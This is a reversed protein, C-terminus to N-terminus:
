PRDTAAAPAALPTATAHAGDSAVALPPVFRAAPELAITTAPRLAALGARAGDVLRQIRALDTDDLPIAQREAEDRLADTIVTAGRKPMMADPVPTPATAVLTPRRAHWTTAREFAHAVRFMTSEDFHRAVVQLAVPLGEDDVGCPVTIAPHGTLNWQRTGWSTDPPSLVWAEREVRTFPLTPTVLADIDAFAAAVEHAWRTRLQQALAVDAGSGFAGSAIHARAKPGYLRGESRLTAAHLAFAEWMSLLNGAPAVSGASPLHVPVIVAGLSRLVELVASFAAEVAPELGEHYHDLSVGIRLGRLDLTLADLYRPVAVDASTPDRPDPGAMAELLLAADAVTRTMPGVHDMSWSLPVLGFRSVRGYTPKLGVIGCLAAPARISGGTDSGTATTTLGGAVASASGASSAGSYLTPDWPNPTDGHELMDGCAFETTNTKGLLIAGAAEIRAVATAGEEPVHAFSTRPHAGTRVRRTWLNDKHSVPVGFLPADGRGKGIEYEALKAASMAADATVLVHSRYVGDFRELRRLLAGVVEVPSVQRAAYAARLETASLFALDADPM